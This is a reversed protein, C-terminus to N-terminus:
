PMKRTGSSRLREPRTSSKETVSFTESALRLAKAAPRITRRLASRRLASSRRAASSMLVAETSVRTPVSDPPL